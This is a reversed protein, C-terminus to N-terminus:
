ERDKPHAALIWFSRVLLWACVLGSFSLVAAFIRSEDVM